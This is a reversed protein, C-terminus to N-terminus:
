DDGQVKKIAAGVRVAEPWHQRGHQRFEKDLYKLVELLADRRAEAKLLAETLMTNGWADKKVGDLARQATDENARMGMTHGRNWATAHHQQLRAVAKKLTENEAHLRRLEAAADLMTQSRIFDSELREALRLAESQTTM